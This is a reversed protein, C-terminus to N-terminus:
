YAFFYWDFLHRMTAAFLKSFMIGPLWTRTGNYKIAGKEFVRVTGRLAEMPLCSWDLKGKLEKKGEKM